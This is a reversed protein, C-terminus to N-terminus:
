LKVWNQFDSLFKDAKDSNLKSRLLCYITLESESGQSNIIKELEDNIEFEEENLAWSNKRELIEECNPRKHPLNSTM